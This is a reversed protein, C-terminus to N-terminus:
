RRLLWIITGGVCSIFLFSAYSILSFGIASSLLLGGLIGLIGFVPSILFILLVISSMLITYFAADDKDLLAFITAAMGIGIEQTIWDIVALSGTAYFTAIFTGNGASGIDCFLTASASTSCTECIETDGTANRNIVRLCASEVLGSPKIYTLIFNNSANNFTLSYEFDRFKDFDYVIDDEIQFIQPTDGVKYSGTTLITTGNQVLIFRYLSDFWNLYVIDEGNQNTKGMTVTYFTDTGVDYLQVFILVDELVRQYRDRVLLTTPTSLTDNLLYLDVETAIGSTKEAETFYYFNKSFGTADAEVDVSFIYDIGDDLGCFDFDSENETVDEYSMNRFVSGSGLFWQWASKFTGNVKPFPNEANRTTFNILESTYTANCLFIYTRNVENSYDTTNQQQESLDTLEFDFQWKFSKNGVSNQLPIDIISTAVYKGNSPNTILATYSSDDYWFLGSVSNVTPNASINISFTQTSTEYVSVNYTVSDVSFPSVTFTNNTDAFSCNGDSICSFVNWKYNDFTFDNIELTFNTDNTNPLTVVTQNFITENEYWVFYTANTFNNSTSTMNATFNIDTNSILEQDTPSILEINIVSIGFPYTLENEYLDTIEDGTLARDWLGVEDILGDFFAAPGGLDLAGIISNLPIQTGQIYTGSNDYDGNIYMSLNTGTYTIVIHNWTSNFVIGNSKLDLQNGDSDDRRFLRLKNNSGTNDTGLAWATGTGSDDNEAYIRRDSQAAANVWMSISFEINTTIFNANTDVYDASGDFDLALNIKGVVSIDETNDGGSLTGNSLDLSDIVNTTALNDDLKYYSTINDILTASSFSIMFTFMIILTFCKVLKM